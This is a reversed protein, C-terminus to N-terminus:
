GLESILANRLSKEPYNRSLKGYRLLLNARFSIIVFFTLQRRIEHGNYLHIKGCGREDERDPCEPLGGNCFSSQNICKSGSPCKFANNECM